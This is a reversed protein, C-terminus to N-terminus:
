ILYRLNYTRKRLSLLGNGPFNTDKNYGNGETRQQKSTNYTVGYLIFGLTIGSFNHASNLPKQIPGGEFGLGIWKILEEVTRGKRGEKTEKERTAFREDFAQETVILM